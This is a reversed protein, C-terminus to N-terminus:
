GDRLGRAGPPRLGGGPDPDTRFATRTGPMFTTCRRARSRHARADATGGLAEVLLCIGLVAGLTDADPHEHSVALVNVPPASASRPALAPVGCGRAFHPSIARVDSM